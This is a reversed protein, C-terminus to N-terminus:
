VVRVGSTGLARRLCMKRQIAVDIASASEMTALPTLANKALPVAVKILPGTFKRLLAGPFVKTQLIKSM